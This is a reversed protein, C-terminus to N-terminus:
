VIGDGRDQGLANSGIGTALSTLYLFPEDLRPVELLLRGGRADWHLPFFGPQSEMGETYDAVTPLTDTQATAFGPATAIAGLLVPVLRFVSSTNFVDVRLM